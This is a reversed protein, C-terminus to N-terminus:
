SFQAVRNLEKILRDAHRHFYRKQGYALVWRIGQVSNTLLCEDAWHMERETVPGVSVQYGAARALAMVQTRMIGPLGGKSLDPTLLERDKILLINSSIAEVILGDHNMLLADDWGKESANVGAMVYPLANLTKHNGIPAPHVPGTRHLGVLLGKENMVFDPGMMAVSQVMCAVTQVEPRYHGAGDRMFQIRVRADPMGNLECLMRVDNMLADSTLGLPLRLHLFRATSQIRQWHADWFLPRGNRVRLTDFFGDGYRLARNDAWVVPADEPLAEGNWLIWTSM